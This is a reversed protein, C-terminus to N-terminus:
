SLAYDMVSLALYPGIVIAMLFLAIATYQKSNMQNELEGPTTLSDFLDGDVLANSFDENSWMTNGKQPITNILIHISHIEPKIVVPSLYMRSIRQDNLPRRNLGYYGLALNFSLVYGNHEFLDDYTGWQAGDTTHASDTEDGYDWNSLYEVIDEYSSNDFDFDEESTDQIFVVDVWQGTVDVMTKGKM